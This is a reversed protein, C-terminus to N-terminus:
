KIFSNMEKINFRNLNGFYNKETLRDDISCSNAKRLYNDLTAIPLQYTVISQIPLIRLEIPQLSSEIARRDGIILIKYLKMHEIEHFISLEVHLNTQFQM